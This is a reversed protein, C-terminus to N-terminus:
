SNRTDSYAQKKKDVLRRLGFFFGDANAESAGDQKVETVFGEWAKGCFDMM